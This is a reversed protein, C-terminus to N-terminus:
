SGGFKMKNVFLTLGLIILSLVAPEIYIGNTFNGWWVEYADRLFWKLVLQIVQLVFLVAFAQAMSKTVIMKMREDKRAIFATYFTRCIFVVLLIALIAVVFWALNVLIVM